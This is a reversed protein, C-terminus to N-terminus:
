QQYCRSTSSSILFSLRFFFIPCFFNVLSVALWDLLEMSCHVEGPSIEEFIGQMKHENDYECCDAVQRVSKWGM